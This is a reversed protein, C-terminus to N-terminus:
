VTHVSLHLTTGPRSGYPMLYLPRCIDMRTLSFLASQALTPQVASNFSVTNNRRIPNVTQWYRFLPVSVSYLCQVFEWTATARNITRRELPTRQSVSWRRATDVISGGSRRLCM